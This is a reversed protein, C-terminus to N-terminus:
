RRTGAHGEIAGGRRADVDATPNMEMLGARRSGVVEAGLSAASDASAGADAAFVKTKASRYAPESQQFTYASRWAGGAAREAGQARRPEGGRRDSEARRDRLGLRSSEDEEGDGGGGGGGVVNRGGDGPESRTESATAGSHKAHVDTAHPSRKLTPARRVHVKSSSRSSASRSSSSSGSGSGSSSFRASSDRSPGDEDEARAHAKRESGVAGWADENKGALEEEMDKAVEDVGAGVLDDYADDAADMLDSGRAAADADRARESEERERKELEAAAEAAEVEERHHVRSVHKLAEEPSITHLVISGAGGRVRSEAQADAESDTGHSARAMDRKERRAVRESVERARAAMEERTADDEADLVPSPEIDRPASSRSESPSSRADDRPASRADDRPASRSDVRRAGRLADTAADLALDLASSASRSAREEDDEDEDDARTEVHKHTKNRSGRRRSSARRRHTSPPERVDSSGAVDDSWWDLLSDVDAEEPSKSSSSKSSSSKSSSSKSSSSKSSSSKSSSSKSSSSKSATETEVKSSKKTSKKSSAGSDTKPELNSLFDAARADKRTHHDDIDDHRTKRKSSSGESGGGDSDREGLVDAVPVVGRHTKKKKSSAGTRARSTSTMEEKEAAATKAEKSKKSGSSESKSESESGSSKSERTARARAKGMEAVADRGGTGMARALEDSSIVEKNRMEKGAGGGIAISGLSAASTAKTDRWSIYDRSTSSGLRAKRADGVRELYSYCTLRGNACMEALWEGASAGMPRDRLTAPLDRLFAGSVVHLGTGSGRGGSWRYVDYDGVWRSNTFRVAPLEAADPDVGALGKDCFLVDWKKPGRYLYSLLFSDFEEPRGMHARDFGNGLASISADEDAVVLAQAKLERADLYARLHQVAHAVADEDDKAASSDLRNALDRFARSGPRPRPVVRVGARGGAHHEDWDSRFLEEADPDGASLYAVFPFYDKSAGLRAAVSGLASPAGLIASASLVAALVSAALLGAGARARARSGGDDESERRGVVKAPDVAFPLPLPSPPPHTTAFAPLPNPLPQRLIHASRRPPLDSLSARRPSASLSLREADSGMTAAM